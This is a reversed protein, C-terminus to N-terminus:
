VNKCYKVVKEAVLNIDGAGVFAVADVNDIYNLVSFMSACYKVNPNIKKIELYLEKASM